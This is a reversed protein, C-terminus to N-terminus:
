PGKTLRRHSERVPVRSRPAIGGSSPSRGLSPRRCSESLSRSPASGPLIAFAFARLSGKDKEYCGRHASRGRRGARVGGDNVNRKVPERELIELPPVKGRACGLREPLRVPLLESRKELACPENCLRLARALRNRDGCPARGSRSASLRYMSARSAKCPCPLPSM